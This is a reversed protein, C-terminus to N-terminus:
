DYTASLWWGGHQATLLHALGTATVVQMSAARKRSPMWWRDWTPWPGAWATVETWPGGNISLQALPASLVGRGTVTIPQQDLDVLEALLGEAYITTPAPSPIQGPWPQTPNVSPAVDHPQWTVFRVQEGPSRGGQRSAVLAADPGLMEQVKMLAQAARADAGRHGGWFGVQKVAPVADSDLDGLRRATTPLRLGPLEGDAARAIRHCIVGDAGLRALVHRESLSAFGGLTLIGLRRLLEELEPRELVALPWPALFEATDEPGIIVAARAALLSAFLGNAIGVEVTTGGDVAAAAESVLRMVETEGGFFRAPGRAPMTFIGPRVVTVWPCYTGIAEVVRACSRLVDGGEDEILLEPCRVLLLREM